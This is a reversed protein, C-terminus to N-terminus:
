EEWYDGVEKEAKEMSFRFREAIRKVVAFFTMGCEQYTEVASRIAADKAVEIDHVRMIEEQDYLQMIIDVVESETKLDTEKVETDEPHIAQYLQLLYRPEGFLNTFVSDKVTKRVSINAPM